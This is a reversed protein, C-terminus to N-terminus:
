HQFRADNFNKWFRIYCNDSDIYPIYTTSTISFHKNVPVKINAIINSGNLSGIYIKSDGLALVTLPPAM